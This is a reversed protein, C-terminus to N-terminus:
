MMLVILMHGPMSNYPLILFISKLFPAVTSGFFLLHFLGCLIIIMGKQLLLSSHFIFLMISFLWHKLLSFPAGSWATKYVKETLHACAAIQFPNSGLFCIDRLMNLMLLLCIKLSIFTSFFLLLFSSLSVYFFYWDWVSLVESM